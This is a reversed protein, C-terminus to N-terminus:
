KDPLEHELFLRSLLHGTKDDAMSVVTDDVVSLAVEASVPRGAGDSTKVKLSIPDRPSYSKKDPEVEVNLRSRRNRYVVREALPLFSDDFVTVRAVGQAHGLSADKPELYVVSPEGAKTQVAATDLVNDRLTATVFVKKADTCRVAVRLATLEGD